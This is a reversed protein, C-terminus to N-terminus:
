VAVSHLEAPKGLSLVQGMASILGREDIPKSVYGDFGMNLYRERDGEMSDATLAIVPVFRNPNASMRLRKLAEIGDLGPMHVDMLVIDFAGDNLHELAEAGNSAETIKLDYSNLFSRAVRLNIHNDDVVLVRCGGLGSRPRHSALQVTNNEAPARASDAVDASFTLTFISGRGPESVATVDGGMMQALQRTIALGLGTGGFRRTTSGDEQSFSAFIHEIKNEAIGCGTDTVHVTVTAKGSEAPSCTVVIMVEGEETFKIANSVLNGICQRVRVPDFALRSPVNPDVHLRLDIGKEEAISMHLKFLSSLKHRIDSEVPSIELKGAEIKSLDLIDNLLVMLARGSDLIISVQETQSATLDEHALAQAMGLVGNLPTRIEHSMNALFESKMRTAQEARHLAERLEHAKRRTERVDEIHTIFVTTDEGPLRAANMAVSIRILEGSKTKLKADTKNSYGTGPGPFRTVLEKFADEEMLIAASQGILDGAEYGSLTLMADNVYILTGDGNAIAICHTATDCALKLLEAQSIAEDRERALDTVEHSCCIVSDGNPIVVTRMVKSLMKVARGQSTTFAVTEGTNLVKRVNRVMESDRYAPDFEFIRMGLVSGGEPLISKQMLSNAGTWEFDIIEGAEDRVPAVECVIIPLLDFTSADM